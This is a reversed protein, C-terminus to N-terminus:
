LLGNKVTKPPNSGWFTTRWRTSGLFASGNTVVRTKLCRVRFEM